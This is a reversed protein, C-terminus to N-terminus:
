YFMENKDRFWIHEFRCQVYFSITPAPISSCSIQKSEEEFQLTGFWRFFTNFVQLRHQTSVALPQQRRCSALPLSSVAELAVESGINGCVSSLFAKVVLNEKLTPIWPSMSWGTKLLFFKGAVIRKTIKWWVTFATVSTNNVQAIFVLTWSEEGLFYAMVNNGWSWICIM